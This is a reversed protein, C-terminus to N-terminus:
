QFKKSKLINYNNTLFINKIEIKFNCLEHYKDPIKWDFTPQKLAPGGMRPVKQIPRANGALTEAERVVMLVAKTAEMAAQMITQTLSQEFAMIEQKKILSGTTLRSSKCIRTQRIHAKKRKVESVM